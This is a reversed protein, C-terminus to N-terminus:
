KKQFHCVVVRDNGGLDKKSELLTYEKHLKIINTIKELEDYGIELIIYSNDNLVNKADNFIKRYVDMGDKGGDLAILPENQVNKDLNKIDDTPIYPPNSVIIDFMVGNKIYYDFLDSKIIECKNSVKNDIVNRKAVEIAKDSIDSLVVNSINSNKAISIGICGSGTCLDLMNQPKKEKIYKIATEVLIESDARPILVNENVYYQEKFFAQSKIIYQLPINYIYMKKLLYDLKLKENYELVLSDLNLFVEESKMNKLYAIIRIIDKIDYQNEKDKSNFNEQVYKDIYKKAIINNNKNVCGNLACIAVEIKDDEPEKTTIFQILMAPYGIFNLGNPLMGIFMVIEYALGFSFPLLIAEIITKFLLNNSPILFTVGLIILFFYVILNGGCRIHFRSMKRVDKITLDKKNLKEYANVVKHEAGHYKFLEKLAGINALICIYIAFIVFKIMAQYINRINIPLYYSTFNPIGIFLVLIIVTAIVIGLGFEFKGIEAEEYKKNRSVLEEVSNIIHPISAKITNIISLIGRIIPIDYITVKNEDFNGEINDIDIKICGNDLRESVVERKKNRLLLGNFLAMGGIKEKINKKM